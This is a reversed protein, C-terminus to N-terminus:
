FGPNFGFQWMWGQQPRDLPRVFDVELIAFGFVNARVGVGLSTVPDVDGGFFSPRTGRGWAVGADSFVVGELPFAGYFNRRGSFLGLLPFRMEVNGVLLRSGILREFVEGEGARFSGVEYGRVLNQYGVYLPFLRPDEGDSGYRGFHVLRVAFTFPRFPMVYERHDALVNSLELDGVTQGFELRSRRGLIPSTAGFLSTDYVFAVSGQAFTLGQPSPLSQREDLIVRGTVLSIARRDVERDFNLYTGGGSLEMRAARSFPYSMLGSLSNNIQRDIFIDEILVPEEGITGVQRQVAGTRFPVRQLAIGWNTRRSRNQYALLGGIDQVSGDVQAATVLQHDGLMDGFFFSIGGGVFTGFRDAGVAVTPPGVYDLGLSARYPEVPFEQPPPLGAQPQELLAFVEGAGERRPPLVAADIGAPLDVLAGGMLQDDGAIAYISYDSGEFASFVLRTGSAAVSLAPSEATIGSVGTTLNTVQWAQGSALDQRYINTIGQRNSLFYLSRGDRSWQPNINKTGAFGALRRIQGDELDIAGIEFTGVRLTELNTTFRDTAFALTRGDPSWAPAYVAFRDETLRRVSETDLDYVFLDTYGTVNASFAIARGDPSYVPNFIEGLGELRIEDATRGRETDIVTLVPEGRSVAAFVFLRGDPHWAGASNIFQLSDFHPDTATRVLRRIIAGTDADALYVDISFLDRESLFVLRRGDPSISPGVNIHGANESTLLPRAISEPRTTAQVIPEYAARLSRHWADSLEDIPLGLVGEIAPIAEGRKGAAKLIQGVVQDGYEGAVYAWFAHGYRYPFFRADDLQRISPLQERLVADRMWMATHPDIPGISLYEAMGEIFWLPLRLATPLGGGEGTIDFQYAHVLEHGLVHDTAALSGAFPLVVRRRLAETVGGTGEGIGGPVINTQRFHPHNAYLILPQRGGLQHDLLQSLRANWREALRGAAQVEDQKETYHYIDFRDTELVQFNFSHYRVVNQGFYQATVSKPTVSHALFLFALVAALRPAPM